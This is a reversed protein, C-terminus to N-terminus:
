YYFAGPVDMMAIHHKKTYDFGNKSMESLRLYSDKQPYESLIFSRVTGSLRFFVRFIKSVQEVVLSGCANGQNQSVSKIEM